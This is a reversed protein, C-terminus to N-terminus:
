TETSFGGVAYSHGSVFVTFAGVRGDASLRARSPSGELKVSRGAALAGDFLVAKYGAFFKRDTQLCLGAGHAFAVRDCLLGSSARRTGPSDLATVSLASYDAGAGTHRFLVHPQALLAALAPSVAARGSDNQGTTAATQGLMLAAAAAARTLTGFWPRRERKSFSLRARVRMLAVVGIPGVILLLSMAQGWQGDPGYPETAEHLIESFPLARTETLQHFAIVAAQVGFLAVLTRGAARAEGADVRLVVATTAPSAVVAILAGALVAGIAELSRLEFASLLLWVIRSAPVLALCAVSAAIALRGPSRGVIEIWGGRRHWLTWLWGAAVVAVCVGGFAEWDALRDSARLFSGWVGAFVVAGILGRRGARDVDVSGTIRAAVVAAAIPAAAQLADSASHLFLPNM